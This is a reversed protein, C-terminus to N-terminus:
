DGDGGLWGVAAPGAGAGGAEGRGVPGGWGGGRRGCEGGVVVWAVGAVVAVPCGVEGRGEARREVV